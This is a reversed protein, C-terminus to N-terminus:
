PTDHVLVGRARSGQLPAGDPNPRQAGRSGPPLLHRIEIVVPEEQAPTVAERERCLVERGNPSITDVKHLMICSLM